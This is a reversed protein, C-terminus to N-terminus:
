KATAGIDIIQRNLTAVNLDAFVVSLNAQGNSVLAFNGDSAVHAQQEVEFRCSRAITLKSFNNQAQFGGETVGKAFRTQQAFRQCMSTKTRRMILTEFKDTIAHEVAGDRQREVVFKRLQGFPLQRTHARIQDALWRQM